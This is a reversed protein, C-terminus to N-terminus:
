RDFVFGQAPGARGHFGSDTRRVFADSIDPRRHVAVGALASGSPCLFRQGTQPALGVLPGEVPTTWFGIRGADACLMRFGGTYLEYGVAITNSESTCGSFNNVTATPHLLDLPVNVIPIAIVTAYKMGFAAPATLVALALILSLPNRKMNTEGKKGTYSRM